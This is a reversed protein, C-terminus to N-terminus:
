SSNALVEKAEEFDDALKRSRKTLKLRGKSDRDTWYGGELRKAPSGVVSLVASGYHISSHRRLELLPENTYVYHLLWSGDGHVLGAFSSKSRSEDSILTVSAASSTQRVVVYVTKVAPTKCTAPDKWLSELTGQWTGSVDRSVGPIVQSIKWKWAWRDWLLLLVTCAFVAASFLSFLNTNPAGTTVWSGAFFVASVIVVIARIVAGSIM